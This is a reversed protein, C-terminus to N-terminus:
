LESILFVSFEPSPFTIYENLQSFALIKYSHYDIQFNPSKLDYSKSNRFQFVKDSAAASISLDMRPSNHM